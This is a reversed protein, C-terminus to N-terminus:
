DKMFVDMYIELWTDNKNVNEGIDGDTIVGYLYKGADMLHFIVENKVRPIYGIKKNANNRVAIAMPDAPNDPEMVLKVKEGPRLKAALSHIRRVHMAGNIMTHMLLIDRTFLDPLTVGNQNLATLTHADAPIAALDHEEKFIDAEAATRQKRSRAKPKKQEEM